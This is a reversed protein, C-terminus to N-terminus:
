INDLLITKCRQLPTTTNIYLYKTPLKNLVTKFIYNRFAIIADEDLEDKRQLIVSEPADLQVIVRPRPTFFALLKWNERLKAKDKSFRTNELLYENFYRDIFTTEKTVLARILRLPYMVLANFIVFGGYIDDVESKGIHMEKYQKSVRDKLLPMVIKYVPSVRFTKKFKFLKTKGQVEKISENIITTKGVGDPGMVAVMNFLKYLKREVRKLTSVGKILSEKLMANKNTRFHLLGKAVLEMNARHAVKKIDADRNLDNFYNAYKTDKLKSKYYAIREQVLPTQLKKGGTALHSLYYLAEIKLFLGYTGDDHRSIYNKLKDAPIYRLTKKQPDKVSLINWIELAIKKDEHKDYITIDIKGYKQATVSFSTNSQVALDFMIKLLKENYRPEIFFDYDGSYSIDERIERPRLMVLPLNVGKVRDLFIKFVEIGSMNSDIMQVVKQILIRNLV